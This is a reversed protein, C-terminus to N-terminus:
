AGGQGECLTTWSECTSKVGVTLRPMCGSSRGGSDFHFQLERTKLDCVSETYISSHGSMRLRLLGCGEDISYAAPLGNCSPLFTLTCAVTTCYKDM